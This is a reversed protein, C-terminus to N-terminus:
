LCKCVVIEKTGTFEGDENVLEEKGPLRHLQCKCNYCKKDDVRECRMVTKITALLTIPFQGEMKTETCYHDLVVRCCVPPEGVEEHMNGGDDKCVCRETFKVYKSGQQKNIGHHHLEIEDVPTTSYMANEIKCSGKSCGGECVLEMKDIAGGTNRIVAVKSICPVVWSDIDQNYFCSGTAGGEGLPAQRTILCAINM